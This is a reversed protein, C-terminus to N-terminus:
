LCACHIRNEDGATRGVRNRDPENRRYIPRLHAPPKVGAGASKGLGGTELGLRATMQKQRTFFTEAAHQKPQGVVAIGPVAKQGPAQRMQQRVTDVAEGALRVVGPKCRQREREARISERSVALRFRFLDREIQRLADIAFLNFADDLAHRQRAIEDVRRGVVHAGGLELVSRALKRRAVVRFKRCDDTVIKELLVKRQDMGDAAGGGARRPEEIKGPAVVLMRAYRKDAFADAEVGSAEIDLGFEPM